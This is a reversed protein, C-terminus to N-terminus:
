HTKVYCRSLGRPGNRAREYISKWLYRLLRRSSLPAPPFFPSLPSVSPLSVSASARALSLTAPAASCRVSPLLFIFFFLLLSLCTLPACLHGSSAQGPRNPGTPVRQHGAASIAMLPRSTADDLRTCCVSACANGVRPGSERVQAQTGYNAITTTSPSTAPVAARPSSRHPPQPTSPPVRDSRVPSSSLLSPPLPRRCEQSAGALRRCVQANPQIVAGGVYGM